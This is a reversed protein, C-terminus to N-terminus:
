PLFTLPLQDKSSTESSKVFSNIVVKLTNIVDFFRSITLDAKPNALTTITAKGESV